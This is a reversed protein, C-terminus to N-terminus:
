RLFNRDRGVHFIDLWKTETRHSIFANEQVNGSRNASHGVRRKPTQIKRVSEDTSTGKM